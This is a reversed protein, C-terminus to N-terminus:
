IDDVCDSVAKIFANRGRYYNEDKDLTEKRLLDYMKQRDESSINKLSNPGDLEFSPLIIEDM